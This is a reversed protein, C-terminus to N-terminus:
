RGCCYNRSPLTKVSKQWNTWLRPPPNPIEPVRERRLPLYGLGKPPTPPTLYYIQLTLPIGLPYIYRGGLSQCITIAVSVHVTANASRLHPQPSCVGVGGGSPQRGWRPSIRSGGSLQCASPVCGVPIGDQKNVNEYVYILRHGPPLHTHDARSNDSQGAGITQEGRRACPNVDLHHSVTWGGCWSRHRKRIIPATSTLLSEM